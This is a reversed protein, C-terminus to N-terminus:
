MELGEGLLGPWHVRSSSCTPCSLFGSNAGVLLVRLLALGAPAPAGDVGARPGEVCDRWVSGVVAARSMVLAVPLLREVWIVALGVLREVRFGGPFDEATASPVPRGIRASFEGCGVGAAVMWGDGEDDGDGDVDGDLRGSVRIFEM